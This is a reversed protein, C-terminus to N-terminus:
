PAGEGTRSAAPGALVALARDLLLALWATLVAGQLVWAPNGNALGTVIPTGLCRAGAVAGVATTAVSLTVATRLRTLLVPRALTAPGTEPLPVARPSLLRNPAVAIWGLLAPALAAALALPALM